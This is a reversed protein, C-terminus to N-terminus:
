RLEATPERSLLAEIAAAPTVGRHMIADLGATVPMDVGLRSALRLAAPVTHAGEATEGIAELAAALSVGSALLEGLRRNRSLPSYATAMLDGVGALGQLTLPDAGAAVALRTIEALGRTLVAAKANHGFEFHDVIGGAIAVVNKLAGGLEVGVVDRSTYVRFARSHFADRLAGTDGASAIVTSSPLGTAVERSLNPGSLVAIQRGPLADAILQSMRKGSDLAIGKTASLLIADAEVADGVADLNAPLASSPTVFCVLDAGAVAAAATTAHLSPPFAVGPLRTRHERAAELAAAEEATRAGLAVAIGNRALQVALTTGWATTGVVAARQVGGAM